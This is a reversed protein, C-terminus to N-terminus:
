RVATRKSTIQAFRSIRSDVSPEFWNAESIKCVCMFLNYRVYATYRIENQDGRKVYKVFQPFTWVDCMLKALYEEPMLSSFVNIKYSFDCELTHCIKRTTRNHKCQTGSSMKHFLAIDFVTISRILPLRHCISVFKIRILVLLFFPDSSWPFVICHM